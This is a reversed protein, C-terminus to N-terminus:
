GQYEYAGMDCNTENRRDPRPMSRQDSPCSAQFITFIQNQNVYCQHIGNIDSFEVGGSLKCASIADIAPSGLLLAQTQTFGGNNQLPGLNPSEGFISDNRTFGAGKYNSSFVIKVDSFIQILSPSDLSVIGYIDPGREANNSAVISASLTLNGLAAIGGGYGSTAANNSITSSVVTTQSTQDISIGGGDLAATNGSITSNSLDLTSSAVYIGGGKYTSATNGSITSNNLNLTSGVIYIGGGKYTSATNGSITSNSLNLTSGAMYIGGGGYASATNGSITNNSLNLMSNDIAIGGGSGESKNGSITTNTLTFTGSGSYVGGGSVSSTNGSIISNSIIVKSSTNNNSSPISTGQNSIGGGYWVSKNGSVITNTLTLIGSGLTAIGGGDSDTKNDSIISNVLALSGSNFIGGGGGVSFADSIHSMLPYGHEITLNYITVTAESSVAFVRDTFGGSISLISAGPGSITLSRSITIEGSTLSITGTINRAFTIVSGEKAKNIADRLSGPGHDNLNTVSAPASLQYATLEKQILGNLVLMLVLAAVLVMAIVGMMSIVYRQRKAIRRQLELERAQQSRKEAEEREREKASAALFEVEGISPVNREAWDLGEVLQNGRYLRDVPKDRRLWEETDESIAQQLLIDSRHIVLWDALRTWERILAEHSVELTPTGAVTTTTLLRASVFADAVERLLITQAPDPLSLETLAARRRTTDQETAGPDILRLFLVRALQRHEDSPLANSTAEAHQALAGKAGGIQHYAEVTLLHGKRREFIQELTFQLLPLAGAQGYVEFLLDGILDGEFTIQVDSLAAPKEIVARLDKMEMPLVSKHYAEILEGLESYYMPRDYFDARMTLIVIVPGGPETIAAVLLEIFLRREEENTTQTFLEEFQDVFLVVKTGARKTLSTALLHLGRASDDELDERIAKFSRHLLHESLAMTLSELPHTGPVIPGLYVWEDSGALGAAQLRTFLGAMVISSKGSGSPGVITLLRAGRKGKKSAALSDRLTEILEDILRERGFFDRADESTFARLGKYPNRPEFDLASSTHPLFSTKRLAAVIEPIAGKYRGERADIYQMGGWGLPVAEMWQNGAIWIPYVPRQYMEAVRLEDKVYRSTRANPSAVLLVAHATRIATRLAEEWDSTGPELGEKDIWINIGQIQLDSKLLEVIEGDARSCSLFILPAESRQQFPTQTRALLEEVVKHLEETIHLFAEDPNQWLTVAKSGVPLVQLTSFPADRYYTPRLIIPVVYAEGAAHRELARKMESGYCYDSNMFDPSILLLIIDATNLHVDVEDAWEKGASIKRDHWGTIHSQRRLHKELENRLKEDERAYCYFLKLTQACELTM